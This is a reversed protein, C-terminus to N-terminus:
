NENIRRVFPIAGRHNKITAEKYTGGYEGDITWSMYEDSVIRIESVHRYYFYKCEVDGSLLANIIAQLEIVNKPYKIFLAEFEGDDLAVDDDFMSLFGGVSFSNTIMGYIVEDEIVEDGIYLKVSYKSMKRLRKAGELLYAIKGLINKASQNTEYSVDTFAGFAAVYDFYDGNIEGIDCPVSEGTVAIHAAKKVNKPLNFSNAFDNVTGAPIYGCPPVRDLAMLGDTVENLTGDGGCCVIRDFGGGIRKVCSSADGKEQTAYVTVEYGHGCFTEIIESIHLKAVGRGANPNYIFLLRNGNNMYM